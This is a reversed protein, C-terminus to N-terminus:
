TELRRLIRARDTEPHKAKDVSGQGSLDQVFPVIAARDLLTSARDWTKALPEDQWNTRVHDAKESAIDALDSLIMSLGVADLFAELHDRSYKIETALTTITEAVKGCKRCSYWPRGGDDPRNKEVPDHGTWEHQCTETTM